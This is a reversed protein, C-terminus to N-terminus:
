FACLIITKLITTNKVRKLAIKLKRDIKVFKVQGM